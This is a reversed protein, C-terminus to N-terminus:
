IRKIHIKFNSAVEFNMYFFYITYAQEGNKRFEGLKRIVNKGITEHIEKIEDCTLLISECANTADHLKEEYHKRFLEISNLVNNIEICKKNDMIINELIEHTTNYDTIGLNEIENTEMCFYIAWKKIHSEIKDKFQEANELLKYKGILTTLKNDNIDFNIDLNIDALYNDLMIYTV